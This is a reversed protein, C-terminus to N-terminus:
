KMPHALFFDLMLDSAKLHPSTYGLFAGQIAPGGPWNHGGKDVTCLTVTADESCGEYRECRSDPLTLITRKPNKCGNRQVWGSITDRVAPFRLKSFLPPSGGDYPVLTDATGHFHMVPVPRRPSCPVVTTQGAVPAVAAIRDSLECALRYSLFAGNSLGTSYIRKPDICLTQQLRDLLARVFAVDDVDRETAPPCCISANWSLPDLGEGSGKPYAVIFNRAEARENMESFGQQQSPNSLLGHFNLLLPVPIRPDYTRPVHVVALRTRGDPTRLRIEEDFPPVSLGSCRQPTVGGDQAPPPPPPEYPSALDPEAATPQPQAAPPDGPPVSFSCGSLPAALSALGSFVLLGARM